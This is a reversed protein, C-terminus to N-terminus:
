RRWEGAYGLAFAGLSEAWPMDICEALRVLLVRVSSETGDDGPM